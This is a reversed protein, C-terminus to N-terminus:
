NIDRSLVCVSINDGDLMENEIKFGCKLFLNFSPENDRKVQAHLYKIAKNEGICLNLLVEALRKRKFEDKVVVNYIFLGNEGKSSYGIMKHNNNNNLVEKLDEHKLLSITAIIENNLLFGSIITFDHLEYTPLKFSIDLFKLLKDKYHQSFDVYKNSFYVLKSYDM